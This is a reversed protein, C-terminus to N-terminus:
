ENVSETGKEDEFLYRDQPNLPLALAEQTTRAGIREAWEEYAAIMSDARNSEAEILNNMETRDENLNYLEWPGGREGVLKWNGERVARSGRFEWFLPKQRDVQEGKWIPLLNIGETPLLERNSYEEPYNTGVAALFTPMIDVLQGPQESLSSAPIKGPWRIIMPTSIGGEHIWQKYKRFPTNSVQAWETDYTRASEEPGPPLIPFHNADFPCGGNDSLFVVLTNEAISLSDLHNLLRGVQEDLRDIMGAYAEMLSAEERRQEESLENWAPTLTDRPSLNWDAKIIGLEKMRALRQERLHDWGQDYKGEYKIINNKPAHLPYHPANHALYLFFPQSTEQSASIQEIAFDTFADTTYFGEPAEFVQDNRRMYNVDDQYNRGTFFNSAGNLFGFYENFGRKNPTDVEEAWNGLHWKGSMITQYGNERFAEALTINNDSRNLNDTQQFHLGTLMTARTETCKATNYFQTMRMGEAALRDLNPTQIESGYCGLDSYGMDDVMILLVNPPEEAQGQTQTCQNFLFLLGLAVSSSLISAKM